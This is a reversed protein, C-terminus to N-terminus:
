NRSLKTLTSWLDLHHPLSHSTLIHRQRQFLSKTNLNIDRSRYKWCRESRFFSQAFALPIELLGSEEGRCIEDASSPASTAYPILLPRWPLFSVCASKPVPYLSQFLDASSRHTQWLPIQLLLIWSHLYISQDSLSLFWSSSSLFHSPHLSCLAYLQITSM